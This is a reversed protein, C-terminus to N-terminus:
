QELLDMLREKDKDDMSEFDKKLKELVLIATVQRRTEENQSIPIYFTTGIAHEM